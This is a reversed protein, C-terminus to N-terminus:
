MACAKLKAEYNSEGDEVLEVQGWETVERAWLEPGDGSDGQLDRDDPARIMKVDIMHKLLIPGDDPNTWVLEGETGGLRNTIDVALSWAATELLVRGMVERRWIPLVIDHTCGVM